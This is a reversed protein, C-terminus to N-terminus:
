RTAPRRLALAVGGLILVSALVLRLTIAEDLLVVGGLAAIVPVSLQVAAARSATLGPLAAYWIAYGVGSALAGSLVAPVVGALQFNWAGANLLLLLLGLPVSWAFNGATALLPNRSSRGRLSYFGWAIGALAMLLAPWLPPADLGPLLLYVLGGIALLIGIWEVLPPREGTYLAALLMTLQVAGFLILAGTGAQLSLYAISFAAAYLFLYTASPLDRPLGPRWRKQSLMVLLGLTIAGSVLRIATFGAADISGSALAVRNLISNAAFAVM